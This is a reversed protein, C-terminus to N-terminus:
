VIRRNKDIFQQKIRNIQTRVSADLQLGNMRFIFGGELDPNVSNRIDAVGGLQREVETAIRRAMDDHLPVATVIAGVHIGQKEAYLTMYSNLIFHLQKDRKNKFVLQMFRALTASMAKGLAEDLLRQKTDTNLLPNYIAKRLDATDMLRADLTQAEHFVIDADGRENAYMLLAKAYRGSIM